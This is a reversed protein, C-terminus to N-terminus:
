RIRSLLLPQGVVSRPTVTKPAEMVPASSRSAAVACPRTTSKLHVKSFGTDAGIGVVAAPDFSKEKKALGIAQSVSTVFGEVYDASNQRALNPDKPDLLIGAEGPEVEVAARQGGEVGLARLDGAGDEEAVAEM